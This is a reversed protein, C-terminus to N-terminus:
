KSRGSCKPALPAPQSQEVAGGLVTRGPVIVISQVEWGKDFTRVIKKDVHLELEKAITHDQRFVQLVIRRFGVEGRPLKPYPLLLEGCNADLDLTVECCNSDWIYWQWERIVDPQQNRIAAVLAAMDADSPWFARESTVAKVALRRIQKLMQEWRRQRDQARPSLCGPAPGLTFLALPVMLASASRIRALM